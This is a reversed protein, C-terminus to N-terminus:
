SLGCGNKVRIELSGFGVITSARNITMKMYQRTLIHQCYYNYEYYDWIMPQWESQNLWPGMRFNPGTINKCWDSENYLFKHTENFQADQRRNWLKHVFIKMRSSIVRGFYKELHCERHLLINITIYFWQGLIDYKKKNGNNRRTEMACVM